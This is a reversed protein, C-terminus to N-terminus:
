TYFFIPLRSIMQLNKPGNLQCHPPNPLHEQSEARYQFSLLIPPAENNGPKLPALRSTLHGLVPILSTSRTNNHKTPLHKQANKLHKLKNSNTMMMVEAFTLLSWFGLAQPLANEPGNRWGVCHGYIKMKKPFWRKPPKPHVHQINASTYGNKLWLCPCPFHIPLAFNWRHILIYIYIYTHVDRQYIYIYNIHPHTHTVNDQPMVYVHRRRRAHVAVYRSCIANVGSIPPSLFVPHASQPGLRPPPNIQQDCPSFKHPAAINQLNPTTERMGLM